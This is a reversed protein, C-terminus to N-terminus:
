EIHEKIFNVTDEVTKIKEISSDEVESIDFEAEISMILEVLDLSDANLDEEFSTNMTIDEAPVGFQEAILKSLNEFILM